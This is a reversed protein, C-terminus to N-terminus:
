DLTTSEAASAVMPAPFGAGLLPALRTVRVSFDSREGAPLPEASAFKQSLPNVMRGGTSLAFHLHPGTSRGTSGVRAIVQKQTVHAGKKVHIKSLHAYHSEYGNAHRVSVLNGNPGKRGAWTVVGDAVAWVATGTPAGYDIGEHKKMYGLTPHRRSGFGSTIRVLPLPQRLFARRASSGDAAYWRADGSRGEHRFFEFTGAAGTWRVALLAGNRVRRGEHVVRDLVVDLRDGARVDRYFDLQWALVDSAEVALGPDEGAKELSEYLSGEVTVSLSETTTEFEFSRTAASLTGDAGRHVDLIEFAGLRFEARSLRGDQGTYAALTHTPRVARAPLAATLAQLLPAADADPLRLKRLAQDLTGNRGIVVPELAVETPL